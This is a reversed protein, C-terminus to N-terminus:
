APFFRAQHMTLTAWGDAGTQVEPPVSFQSFPVATAYVLAGAVSRGNCASVHFRFTVDSASRTIVSPSVTQGDILLRAPASVSAVDVPGSGSAPCGNVTTPPPTANSRVVATPGSSATASGDSNTATIRVRITHGVDAAKLQYTSSDAGNINSCGDGQRDCRRWQYDYSLTSASTWTGPSASLTQGEQAANGTIKPAATNVPKATSAANSFSAVVLVTVAAAGLLALLNRKRTMWEGKVPLYM